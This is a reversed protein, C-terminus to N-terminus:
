VQGPLAVRQLRDGGGPQARLLRVPRQQAADGEAAGPEPELPVGAGVRQAGAGAGARAVYLCQLACAM